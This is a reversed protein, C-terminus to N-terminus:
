ILGAEKMKRNIYDEKKLEFDPIRSIIGIGAIPSRLGSRKLLAVSYSDLKFEELLKNRLDEKETESLLSLYNEKEKKSFELSFKSKLNEKKKDILKRIKEQEDLKKSEIEFIPVSKAYDNKIAEVLFGTFTKSVNGNKHENITYEINRKITDESYNEIINLTTKKSIKYENVLLKYLFNEEFEIIKEVDAQTKTIFNTNEIDGKNKKNSIIVFKISIVKKWEKIEDFQFYIDTKENLEKQAVLIVKKKFDSYFTYKNDDIKLFARIEDVTLLREGRFEYQKLLEYIRIAYASKLRAINSFYYKTYNRELGIVLPKLDQHIKFHVTGKSDYDVDTFFAKQKESDGEGKIVVPRILGKTANKLHTYNTDSLEFDNLLKKVSFSYYEENPNDRISVVIKAFLKLQMLNFDVPMEILENSKIVLEKIKKM